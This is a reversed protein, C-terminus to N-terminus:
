DNLEQFLQWYAPWLSPIPNLPIITGQLGVMVEDWQPFFCETGKNSVSFYVLLSDQCEVNGRCKIFWICACQVAINGRIWVCYVVWSKWSPRLFDILQQFVWASTMVLRLVLSQVAFEIVWSFIALSLIVWHKMLGPFLMKKFNLPFSMKSIFQGREM